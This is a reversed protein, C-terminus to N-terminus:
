FSGLTASIYLAAEEQKFINTFGLRQLEAVIEGAPAESGTEITLQGGPQLVRAAQRLAGIKEGTFADYPMREFFLSKFTGARFPINAVNGVIRPSADRAINLSVDGAVEAGGGSTRGGGVVLRLATTETAQATATAGEAAATGTARSAASLAGLAPRMAWSQVPALATLVGNISTIELQITIEDLEADTMPRAPAVSQNNIETVPIGESRLLRAQDQIPLALFEGLNQPKSVPRAGIDDAVRPAVVGIGGDAGGGCTGPCVSGSSGTPDSPPPGSTKGPAVHGTIHGGAAASEDDTFTVTSGDDAEMGTPDTVTTPNNLGYSYPNLAESSGTATLLPDPTLFRKASPDFLRAGMNILNIDEDHQHGTFGRRIDRLVDAAPVSAQAVSRTGFPTYRLHAVVRGSADSLTDVSGLADDHLYVTRDPAAVAWSVQAIPRDAVISFVHTIRGAAARKEYLGGISVTSENGRAKRVRRHFADYSFRVDGSTTRIRSPLDFATYDVARNPGTRQNGVADYAYRTTTNGSKTTTVAHPGAGNEGYTHTTTGAKTETLVNGGPGYTWTTTTKNANTAGQDWGTLRDAADYKFEDSLGLVHDQRLRINGNEEYGYELSQVVGAGTAAADVTRLRGVDDFSRTTTVGNGLVEATPQGFVNRAWATWYQRKTAVDQVGRLEGQATYVYKVQLPARGPVVPYSLVDIRGDPTYSMGIAYSEGAVTTVTRSPRSLADYTYATTVNDTSRAAAPLGLGHPATDWTFTTTGGATTMTTARGLVDREYTTPKGTADSERMVEGFANYSTEHTGSDPDTLATRRGLRDYAMTVTAGDPGIIEQLEDFTGYAYSTRLTADTVSALRGSEDELVVRQNGKEDRQTTQLGQYAWIRSTGDPNALAVLRDLDDYEYRRSVVPDGAKHPLAASAVRGAEDYATETLVTAGAFDQWQRSTVRGYPDQRFVTTRGGTAAVTVTPLGAADALYSTSVDGNDPVDLYRQRGLGDYHFQTRVNNPDTAQTIVGLGGHHVLLTHHGAANAVDVPYLHEATDYTITQTRTQGSGTSTIATVLGYADRELVTEVGLDGPEDVVRTLMATDPNYDYDTTRSEARGARTTSTDTRHRMQGVIWSADFNDYATSIRRSEPRGAPAGARVTYVLRETETVNGFDDQVQRSDVQRLLTPGEFDRVTRKDAYPFYTKNQVVPRCSTTTVSRYLRGGATVEATETVPMGACPYFTGVRTTNDFVTSTKRGTVDDIETRRGFGLWGRGRLDSRADAYQYRKSTRSSTGPAKIEHRAVVWGGRLACTQPYECGTGRTYVDPDSVPRYTFSNTVGRGDTIGLLLDEKVCVPDSGSTCGPSRLYVHFNGRTPQVFDDLGDGNADLVKSLRWGRVSQPQNGASNVNDGVPIAPTLSLPQFGTGTSLLVAPTSLPFNPHGSGSLLLLDQRGDGNFDTVRAGVDAQPNYLVPGNASAFFPNVGPAFSYPAPITWKEPLLFGNGTNISVNLYGQTQGESVWDALGDGNVDLFIPRAYGVRDSVINTSRVVPGDADLTIAAHGGGCAFGCGFPALLSARGSGDLDIAIGKTNRSFGAPAGTRLYDAPRGGANLRYGAFDASVMEPLGDGNMDLVYPERTYPRFQEVTDNMAVTGLPTNLYTRNLFEAPTAPNNDCKDRELFLLDARSDGTVDIVRGDSQVSGDGPDVCNFPLHRCGIVEGGSAPLHCHGQSGGSVSADRYWIDDRGDADLDATQLVPNRDDGAELLTVAIGTDVDIYSESADPSWRLSTPALCAGRGDCEQIGTLLSRKTFGTNAYALAYSRMLQGTWHMEVRALRRRQELRLGSVYQVIADPRDAYRFRVERTAPVAGASTSGTYAITTLLQEYGHNEFADLQYATTLYNGARDEMRSLSWGFRVQQTYDVPWSQPVPDPFGTSQDAKARHGQVMANADGGGLTLIRRDPLYAKFYTPGLADPAYSVIKVHRDRELRYETGDGGYASVAGNIGGTAVLREGDLCYRDGKDGDVFAIGGAAGDQAYTRVCRTIRPIGTLRWGMGAIGNGSRSSYALALGPEIGARGPPTWLPITYRAAGDTSVGGQGLTGGVAQGDVTETAVIDDAPPTVLATAPPPPDVREALVAM